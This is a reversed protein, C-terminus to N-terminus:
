LYTSDTCIKLTRLHVGKFIKFKIIEKKRGNPPLATIKRDEWFDVHIVVHSSNATEISIVKM